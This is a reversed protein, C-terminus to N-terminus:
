LQREIEILSNSRSAPPWATSPKATSAPPTWSSSSTAASSEDLNPLGSFLEDLDDSTLPPTDHSPQCRIRAPLDDVTMVSGQNVYTAMLSRIRGSHLYSSALLILSMSGAVLLLIKQQLNVRLRM